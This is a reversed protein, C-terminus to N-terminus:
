GESREKLAGLNRSADDNTPDLELAKTFLAKAKDLNGAQTHTVGANVLTMADNPALEVAKVHKAVAEDLKGLIRLV